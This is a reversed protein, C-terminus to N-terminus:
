ALEIEYLGVTASNITVTVDLAHRFRAVETTTGDLNNKSLVKEGAPMGYDRSELVMRFPGSPSTLYNTTVIGWKEQNYHKYVCHGMKANNDDILANGSLYTTLDYGSDILDLEHSLTTPRLLKGKVVYPDTYTRAAYITRLLLAFFAYPYSGSPPIVHTYDTTDTFTKTKAPTSDLIYNIMGTRLWLFYSFQGNYLANTDAPDVIQPAFSFTRQYDGYLRRFMGSFAGFGFTEYDLDAVGVFDFCGVMAEDAAESMSGSGPPLGTGADSEVVLWDHIKGYVYKGHNGGGFPSSTGWDMFGSGTTGAVQDFYWFDAAPGVAGSVGTPDYYIAMLVDLMTAMPTDVYGVGVTGFDYGAGVYRSYDWSCVNRKLLPDGGWDAPTLQSTRVTTGGPSRCMGTRLDGFKANFVIAYASGDFDTLNFVGSTLATDWYMVNLYAGVNVGLVHTATIHSNFSTTGRQPVHAPLNKDFINGHWLNAIQIIDTGDSGLNGKLRTVETQMFSYDPTTTGTVVGSTTDGTRTFVRASKAKTSVDAADWWKSGRVWYRATSNGAPELAYEAYKDICDQWGSRADGITDVSYSKLTYMGTTLALTNGPTRNGIGMHYAGFTVSNTSAEGGTVRWDIFPFTTESVFRREIYLTSRVSADMLGWWGQAAPTSAIVETTRRSPTRRVYGDWIPWLAYVDEPANRPEIAFRPWEIGDVALTTSTNTVKATWAISQDTASGTATLTVTLTGNTVAKTGIVTTTSGTTTVTLTFGTASHDVLTTDGAGTAWTRVLFCGTEACTWTRGGVTISTFSNTDTDIEVAPMARLRKVRAFMPITM